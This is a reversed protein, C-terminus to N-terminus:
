SDLQLDNLYFACHPYRGLVQLERRVYKVWVTKSLITTKGSCTARLEIVYEGVETPAPFVLFSEADSDVEGEWSGDSSIGEMTYTYSCQKTMGSVLVTNERHPEMLLADVLFPYEFMTNNKSTYANVVTLSLETTETKSKSKKFYNVTTTVAGPTRFSFVIGVILAAFIIVIWLPLSFLKHKSRYTDLPTTVEVNQIPKTISGYQLEKM